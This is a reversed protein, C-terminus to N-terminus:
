PGGTPRALRGLAAALAAPMRRPRLDSGVVVLSVECRVLVRGDRAVDQVMAIRAGSLATVESTVVLQDEFVAPALYSVHVTRVVIGVGHAERLSTQSLGLDLLAETRAREAFKLYNAYYVIGGADTDEYYVRLRFEHAM